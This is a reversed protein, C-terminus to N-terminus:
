SSIARIVSVFRPVTFLRSLRALFLKARITAGMIPQAGTGAATRRCGPSSGCGWAAERGGGGPRRTRRPAARM